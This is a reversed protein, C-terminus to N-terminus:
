LCRGLGPVPAHTGPVTQELLTESAIVTEGRKGMTRGRERQNHFIVVCRGWKAMQTKSPQKLESKQLQAKKRKRCETLRFDSKVSHVSSEM